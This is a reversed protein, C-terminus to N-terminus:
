ESIKSLRYVRVTHPRLTPALKDTAPKDKHSWADRVACVEDLYVNVQETTDGLNFAAIAFDGNELKKKFVHILKGDGELMIYPKATFFGGDQTIALIEENCYLSLEFETIKDLQASIQIPSSLFARMTFAVIQEDETLGHDPENVYKLWHFLECYGEELMDLDFYHGKNVYDIFDFYTRYIDMLNKWNGTSDGNCRYSNCYKKWYTHYEPRARVSVCFGFDRDTEVLERRMLEANYPDSPRWDYKLYDFGWEAWQLANNKEKRILGIGGREDAFRDDPEGQTCGPPLPIHNISCGFANLMPTSYIGCKFGMKHMRDCFGKMDPFKENPMIADFKGGYEGQWGSDINIYSYGYESIGLDSILRASSEMDEQTVAFAFANWSTFGLLPSLIVTDKKIEFSLEMSDSGLENEATLTVNYVGESEISGKIIAGDLSLGEPLGDASYKIPRQGTVPIKLLIPKKPSAGYKSCLNIHPAGEFPTAIAIETYRM